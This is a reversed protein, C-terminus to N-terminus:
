QFVFVQTICFKIYECPYIVPCKGWRKLGSCPPFVLPKTSLSAVLLKTVLPSLILTLTIALLVLKVPFIHSNCTSDPSFIFLTLNINLYKFILTLNFLHTYSVPLPSVEFHDGSMIGIVPGGPRLTSFVLAGCLVLVSGSCKVAMKPKLLCVVCTACWGVGSRSRVSGDLSGSYYMLSTWCVFHIQLKLVDRLGTYRLKFNNNLM